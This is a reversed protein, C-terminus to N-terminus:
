RMFSALCRPPPNGVFAQSRWQPPSKQQGCTPVKVQGNVRVAEFTCTEVMDRIQEGSRGWATTTGPASVTCGTITGFVMETTSVSQAASAYDGLMLCMVIAASAASMRRM